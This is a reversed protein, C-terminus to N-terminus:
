RQPSTDSLGSAPSPFITVEGDLSWAVPRVAPYGHNAEVEDNWKAATVRKGTIDASRLLWLLPPVMQHPQILASRQFGLESPIMATDAPGGPILVNVTIGSGELDQAMIASHAELSAKTGGYPALGRRLMSPLSTTVNVIRGWSRRRMQPILGIALLMPAIANVEFFRRVVEPSLEDVNIPDAFYNPRILHPGLGANNILVDVRGFPKEAFELISAIGDQEALDAVLTAFRGSRVAPEALTRLADGHKDIGIGKFGQSILGDVMAKGLGSAAGTILFVRQDNSGSSVPLTADSM